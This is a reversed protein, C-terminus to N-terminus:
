VVRSAPIFVFPVLRLVSLVEGLMAEAELIGAPHKGPRADRKLVVAEAVSFFPEDRQAQQAPAQHDYGM